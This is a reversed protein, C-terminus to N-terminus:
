NHTIASCHLFNPALSCDTISWVTHDMGLYIETAEQDDPTEPHAWGSNLTIGCRGGQEAKFETDYVHYAKAHALVTNHRAIRGIHAGGGM